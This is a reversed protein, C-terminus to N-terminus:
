RFRCLTVWRVAPPRVVVFPFHYHTGWFVRGCVFLVVLFRCFWCSCGFGGCGDFDSPPAHGLPARSFVVLVVFVVLLGCVFALVVLIVLFWWVRISM